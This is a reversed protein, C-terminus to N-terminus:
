YRHYAKKSFIEVSIKLFYSIIKLFLFIILAQETNGLDDSCRRFIMLAMPEWDYTVHSLCHGQHSPFSFVKKMSGSVMRNKLAMSWVSNMDAFKLNSQPLTCGWMKAGQSLM